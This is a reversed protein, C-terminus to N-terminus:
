TSHSLMTRAKKSSREQLFVLKKEQKKMEENFKRSIKKQREEDGAKTWSTQKSPIM